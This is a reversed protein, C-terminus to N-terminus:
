LDGDRWIERLESKPDFAAKVILAMIYIAFLPIGVLIALMSYKEVLMKERTMSPAGLLEAVWCACHGVFMLSVVGLMFAVCVMIARIM